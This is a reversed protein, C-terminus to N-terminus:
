RYEPQSRSELDESHEEVRCVSSFSPPCASEPLPRDRPESQDLQQDDNRDDTNQSRDRNWIKQISKLAAFLLSRHRVHPSQCRGIEPNVRISSSITMAIM